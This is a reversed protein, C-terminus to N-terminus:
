DGVDVGRVQLVDVTSVLSQVLLPTDTPMVHCSPHKRAPALLGQAGRALSVHRVSHAMPAPHVSQM